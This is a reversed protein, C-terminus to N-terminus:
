GKRARKIEKKILSVVRGPDQCQRLASIVAVGDAGLNIAIGANTENIGGIAVIPLSIEARIARILEKPLPSICPKTPSEFFPGLGIYNAGEQEARKAAEISRASAGIIAQKGMLRRADVVPIDDQGLHVGDAKTIMAIDIRDNILVPIVLRRGIGVCRRAFDLFDKDTRDKVRVQFFTVGGAATQEMFAELGIVEEISHDIIACISYDVTKM